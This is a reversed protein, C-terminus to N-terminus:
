PCSQQRGHLHSTDKCIMASASARCQRVREASSIMAKMRYWSERAVLFCLGLLGFRSNGDGVPEHSERRDPTVM